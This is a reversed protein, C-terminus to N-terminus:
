APFPEVVSVASETPVVGATRFGAKGLLVRYEVQTAGPGGSLLLMVIDLIKGPHPTDGPPLVMEILPLGNGSTTARRCHGLIALCQEESWDRVRIGVCADASRSLRIREITTM